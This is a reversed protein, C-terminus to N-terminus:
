SVSPQVPPQSQTTLKTAIKNALKVALGVAASVIATCIVQEVTNVAQSRVADNADERLYPKMGEQLQDRVSDCFIAKRTRMDIVNGQEM